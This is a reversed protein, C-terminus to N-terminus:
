GAGADRGATTRDARDRHGARDHRWSGGARATAVGLAAGLTVGVLDAVVDSPDGSRDPLLWHQALESSVAHVVLATALWRLPLRVQLGTFAVAAFIGIHVVKDVNPFLEGGSV